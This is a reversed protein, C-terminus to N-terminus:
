IRSTLDISKPDRLVTQLLWSYSQIAIKNQVCIEKLVGSNTVLTRQTSKAYYLNLTDQTSLGFLRYVQAQDLWSIHTEIVKLGTRQLLVSADFHDPHNCEAVVVDLVEAFALSPYEEQSRELLLLATADLLLIM